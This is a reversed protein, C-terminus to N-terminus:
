SCKIHCSGEKEKEFFIYENFIWKLEDIEFNIKLM